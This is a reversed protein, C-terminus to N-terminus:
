QGCQYSESLVHCIFGCSFNLFLQIGCLILPVWFCRASYVSDGAAGLLDVDSSGFMGYVAPYLFMLSVAMKMM